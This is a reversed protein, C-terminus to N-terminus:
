VRTAVLVAAVFMMAAAVRHLARQARENAFFGRAQAALLAYATNAGGVIVLLLMAILGLEAPTLSALDVFGPLLAAYFLIAQVHGFMLLLGAGFNRWFHTEHSAADVSVAVRPRTRWFAVGQWLLYVVGLWRLVTFLESMSKAAAAMGAAALGLFLLDGALVGANLALAPKAGDAIARAVIATVAPGPTLAFVAFTAALAVLAGFTM